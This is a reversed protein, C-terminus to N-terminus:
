GPDSSWWRVSDIWVQSDRTLTVDSSRYIGAKHYPASEYGTYLNPGNITAKLVGNLWVQVRGGSGTSWRHYVKFQLRMGLPVPEALVASQYNGNVPGGRVVAILRGPSPGNAEIAFVPSGSGGHFQTIIAWGTLEFNPDLREEWTIWTEKGELSAGGFMSAVGRFYIESRRGSAVYDSSGVKALATYSGELPDSTTLTIRDPTTEQQSLVQSFDGTEFDAAYGPTPSPPPPSCASTSVQLVAQSSSNGAADRAVVGFTYSTGCALGSQASSTSTVTEMRTSGRYVDYGTVGVNDTSANWSLTLGTQTVNSAALGTPTSPPTTDPCSTTSVLTTVKQSRNGAADYADVALTYSTNCTLGSIIGTTTGSTGVLTTGRYLGYGVVAVNDNSASWSLAISTATRSTSVLSSPATPPQTDSCAATSGVLSARTSRNGAGDYADVEFTYSTGCTLSSVTASTQTTTSNASGNV